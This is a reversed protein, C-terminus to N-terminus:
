AHAPVVARPVMDVSRGVYEETIRSRVLLSRPCEVQREPLVGLSLPCIRCLLLYFLYFLFVPPAVIAVVIVVRIITLTSV